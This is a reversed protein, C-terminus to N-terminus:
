RPEIGFFLNALRELPSLKQNFIFNADLTRIRELRKPDNTLQPQGAVVRALGEEEDRHWPNNHRNSLEHIFEHAANIPSDALIASFPTDGTTTMGHDSFNPPMVGMDINRSPASRLLEQYESPLRNFGVEALRSAEPSVPNLGPFPSKFPPRLRDSTSMMNGPQLGKRFLLLRLVDRGNLILADEGQEKKNMLLKTVTDLASPM